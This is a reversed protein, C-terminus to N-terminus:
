LNQLQILQAHVAGLDLDEVNQAAGLKLLLEDQARGLKMATSYPLEPRFTVLSYKSYYDPYQQELLMEIKRKKIFDGDDVRDQMEHFNDIALDAIANTNEARADQFETFLQEWNNGHVEMMEDFVRVDEFAANMGQGYFPVIAHSADGMILTKNYAQWPYCKITGLTGVPNDFYEEVYHPMHPILTPFYTEFFSRVQKETNLHNFGIETEFPHFMTVTFSGDLNPLAIIMFHGRPWIHLANKEILFGGDEAPLISLEKYGHRLFDQSYNFLLDTTEAMMSRRVASGAGDTGIVIAGKEQISEGTEGNRFVATANKLDVSQCSSNFHIQINDMGEAKNLLTINLGGRSVSNIYDESRGSYPSLFSPAGLPHILRGRMPICEEIITEKLGVSDLAMLGRNSLALNISRGAAIDEKRMDPRKEHLSINFGRQALRIALLTGCLGAGVIIIKNSNNISM